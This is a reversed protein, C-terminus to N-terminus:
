LIRNVVVFSHRSIRAAVFDDFGPLVKRGLPYVLHKPGRGFQRPLRTFRKLDVSWHNDRYFTKFAVVTELLAGDAADGQQPDGGVREGLGFLVPNRRRGPKLVGM